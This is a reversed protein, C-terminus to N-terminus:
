VFVVATAPAVFLVVQTHTPVKVAPEFTIMPLKSEGPALTVAALDAVKGACIVISSM